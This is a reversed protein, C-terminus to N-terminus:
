EITGTESESETATYESVSRLRSNATADDDSSASTQKKKKRKPNIQRQESTRKEFQENAKRRREGVGYASGEGYSNSTQRDSRRKTEKRGDKTSARTEHKVM